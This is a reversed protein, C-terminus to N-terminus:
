SFFECAEELKLALEKRFQAFEQYKFDVKKAASKTVDQYSPFDWHIEAILVLHGSEPGLEKVETMLRYRVKPKQDRSITKAMEIMGPKAELNKIKLAELMNSEFSEAGYCKPQLEQVKLGKNETTELYRYFFNEMTEFLYEYLKREDGFSKKVKDQWDQILKSNDTM